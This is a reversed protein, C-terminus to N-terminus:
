TRKNLLPFFDEFYFFNIKRQQFRFRSHFFISFTLTESKQFPFDYKKSNIKLSNVHSYWFKKYIQPYKHFTKFINKRSKKKGLYPRHWSVKFSIIAASRIRFKFVFQSKEFHMIMSLANFIACKLPTSRLRLPFVYRALFLLLPWPPHYCSLAALETNGLPM